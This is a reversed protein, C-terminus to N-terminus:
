EVEIQFADRFAELLADERAVAEFWSVGIQERWRAADLGLRM